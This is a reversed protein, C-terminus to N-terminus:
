RRRARAMRLLDLVISEALQIDTTATVNTLTVEEDGYCWAVAHAKVFLGNLTKAPIRLILDAIASGADIADESGGSTREESWARELMNGLTILEADPEDSLACPNTHQAHTM